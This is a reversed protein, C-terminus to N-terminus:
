GVMRKRARDIGEYRYKPECLECDSDGQGHACLPAPGPFNSLTIFDSDTGLPVFQCYLPGWFTPCYSPTYLLPFPTWHLSSSNEVSDLAFTVM